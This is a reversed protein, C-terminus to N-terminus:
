IPYIGPIVTTTSNIVTSWIDDHVFTVEFNPYVENQDRDDRFYTQKIPQIRETGISVAQLSLICAESQLINSIMRTYDGATLASSNAPDIVAVASGIEFTTAIKSLENHFLTGDNIVDTRQPSGIRYDHTKHIFVGTSFPAGESTPQYAQSIDLPHGVNSLATSIVSIINRILDNDNM